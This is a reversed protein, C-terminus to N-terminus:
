RRGAERKRMRIAEVASGKANTPSFVNNSALPSKYAATPNVATLAAIKQKWFDVEPDPASSPPASNLLSIRAAVDNV